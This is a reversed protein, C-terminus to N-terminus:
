LSGPSNTVMRSWGLNETVFSEAGTEPAMERLVVSSYVDIGPIRPKKV